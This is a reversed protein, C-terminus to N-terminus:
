FRQELRAPPNQINIHEVAGLRIEQCRHFDLAPVVFSVGLHSHNIECWSVEKGSSGFPVTSPTMITNGRFLTMKGVGRNRSHWIEVGPAVRTTRPM